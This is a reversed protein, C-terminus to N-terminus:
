FRFRGAQRRSRDGRERKRATDAWERVITPLRELVEKGFLVEDLYGMHLMDVIRCLYSRGCNWWTYYDDVMLYHKVDIQEQERLEQLELGDLLSEYVGDAVRSGFTTTYYYEKIEWVAIPNIPGPFAGDVRRSLTRIPMGDTTITTLERPDYDCEMGGANAEITMNIIATFYAPAKKAGKQKNMPIPCRPRLKSNLREFLERASDKTMLRPEAYENLLKARHEFYRILLKAFPTPKAGRDVIHDTRLGLEVLAAQIEALSPIRIQGAGRITYGIHQSLSRVHAWFAKP